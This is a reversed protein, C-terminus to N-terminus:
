NPRPNKKSIPSVRDHIKKLESDAWRAYYKATVVVGKHNLLQSVQSLDAGNILADRAFAHRFSHPNWRVGRLGAVEALRSIMKYIGEGSIGRHKQGTWLRYDWPEMAQRVELWAAVASATVESIYISSPGGGKDPASMVGRPLDVDSIDISALAGVRAGSDRLALLIAANRVQEWEQGTKLATHLLTEFTSQDVAKPQPQPEKVNPLDVPAWYGRGAGWRLFHRTTALVTRITFPSLPAAVMSSGRRKERRELLCRRFADISDQNVTKDDGLFNVLHSLKTQYAAPTKNTKGACVDRIFEKSLDLIKTQMIKGQRTAHM